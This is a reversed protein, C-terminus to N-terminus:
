PEQAFSIVIADADVISGPTGRTAEVTGARPARLPHEMKMAEVVAVIQGEEVTDGKSVLLKVLTGPMPARVEHQAEGRHAVGGREESLVAFEFTKGSLWVWIRDKARACRVVQQGHANRFMWRGPSLEQITVDHKSDHLSLVVGDAASDVSFEVAEGNFLLERKMGRGKRKRDAM